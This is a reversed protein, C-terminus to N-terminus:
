LGHYLGDKTCVVFCFTMGLQLIKDSRNVTRAIHHAFSEYRAFWDYDIEETYRENWYDKMAYQDNTTPLDMGMLLNIIDGGRVKEVVHARVRFYVTHTANGLSPQQLEGV